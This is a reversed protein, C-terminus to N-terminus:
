VGRLTEIPIDLKSGRIRELTKTVVDVDNDFSGHALPISGQGTPVEAREKGHTPV